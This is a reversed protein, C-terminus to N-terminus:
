ENFPEVFSVQINGVSPIKGTDYTIVRGRTKIDFKSVIPPRIIRTKWTVTMDLRFYEQGEIILENPQFILSKTRKYSCNDPVIVHAPVAQMTENILKQRIRENLIKLLLQEGNYLVFTEETLIGPKFIEDPRLMFESQSNVDTNLLIHFNAFVSTSTDLEETAILLEIRGDQNAQAEADKTFSKAIFYGKQARVVEVKKSFVIIEDKDVKKTWNKCEFIFIAKYGKGYDITIYIDIEHKVGNIVVIKKPEITVIAEKTAPNAGLICTEILQVAKELADGKVQSKTRPM